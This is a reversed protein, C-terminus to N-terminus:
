VKKCWLMDSSNTISIWEFWDGKKLEGKCICIRAPHAHVKVTGDDLEDTWGKKIEYTHYGFVRAIRDTWTGTVPKISVVQLQMSLTGKFRRCGVTLMRLLDFAQKLDSVLTM